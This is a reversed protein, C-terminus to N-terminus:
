LNGRQVVMPLLTVRIRNESWTRFRTRYMRHFSLIFKVSFFFFFLTVFESDHETDCMIGTYSDGYATNVFVTKRESRVM